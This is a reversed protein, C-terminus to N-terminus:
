YDKAPEDHSQKRNFNHGNTSSSNLEDLPIRQIQETLEEFYRGGKQEIMDRVWGLTTHGIVGERPNSLLIGAVGSNHTLLVEIKIRPLNLLENTASVAEFNDEIYNDLYQKLEVDNVNSALRRTTVCQEPELDAIISRRCLPTVREVGLQISARYVATLLDFPIILKATYIYDVLVEVAESLLGSRGDLPIRSLNGAEQEGRSLEDFIARAAGGVLVRHCYIERGGVQLVLDCFQKSKRFVDLTHITSGHHQSDVWELVSSKKYATKCEITMDAENESDDGEDLQRHLDEGKSLSSGGSDSSVTSFTFEGRHGVETPTSNMKYDREDAGNECKITLDEIVEKTITMEKGNQTATGNTTDHTELPELGNKCNEKGITLKQKLASPTIDNNGAEINYSNSGLTEM